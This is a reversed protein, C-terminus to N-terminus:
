RVHTVVPVVAVGPVRSQLLNLWKTSDHLTEEVDRDARWIFVYVARNLVFLEHLGAKEWM